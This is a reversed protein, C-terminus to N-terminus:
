RILERTNAIILVQVGNIEPDVRMISPVGFALTKGSGNSAQFLFNEDVNKNVKPISTAQIISPKNMKLDELIHKLEEPVLLDDWSYKNSQM